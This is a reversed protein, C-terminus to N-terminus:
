LPLHVALNLCILRASANKDLGEVARSALKRSQTLQRTLRQNDREAASRQLAALVRTLADLFLRLEGKSSSLSDLFIIREYRSMKLLSKASDVAVKLPHEEDDAIIASALGAAGQSLNWASEIAKEPASGSFFRLASKLDVPAITIKQARSAITPLVDTETPATLIFVTGAPPEEIIKLLANQAEESLQHADNILVIKQAAGGKSIAPKLKLEHIAQRVADISIEQKDTPKSLIILYPYTDLKDLPVGVLEAALYRALAEKGSGPQGSIILAQSPKALFAGAQVRTKAHLLLKAM